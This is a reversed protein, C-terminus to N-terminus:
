ISAWYSRLFYTDLLYPVFLYPLGFYPAVLTVYVTPAYYADLAASAPVLDLKRGAMTALSLPAPVPAGTFTSRAYAVSSSPPVMTPYLVTYYATSLFALPSPSAISSASYTSSSMSM